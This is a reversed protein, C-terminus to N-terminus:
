NQDNRIEKTEIICNKNIYISKNNNDTVKIFGEELTMAGTITKIYPGDKFVVKKM